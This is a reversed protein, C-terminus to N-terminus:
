ATAHRAGSARFRARRRCQAPLKSMPRRPIASGEDQLPSLAPNGRRVDVVFPPALPGTLGCFFGSTVRKDEPLGVTNLTCYGYDADLGLASLRQMAARLARAHLVEPSFDTEVWTLNRFPTGEPAGVIREPRAAKGTPSCSQWGESGMWPGSGTRRRTGGHEGVGEKELLGVMDLRVRLRRAGARRSIVAGSPRIVTGGPLGLIRIWVRCPWHTPM